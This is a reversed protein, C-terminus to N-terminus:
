FLKSFTIKAFLSDFNKKVLLKHGFILKTQNEFLFVILTFNLNERKSSTEM